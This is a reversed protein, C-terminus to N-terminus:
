NLKFPKHPPPSVNSVHSTHKGHVDQRGDGTEWRGGGVEWRGDGMEVGVCMAYM